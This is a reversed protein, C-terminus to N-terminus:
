RRSLLREREFVRSAWLVILGDLVAFLIAMMVLAAPTFLFLFATAPILLLVIPLALLGNLQYAVRYGSVRTSILAALGATFLAVLPVVVLVAWIRRGPLDTREVFWAAATGIVACLATVVVTLRVTNWLLSATLSRFILDLVTSVGAGQAEILLFALPLILLVAVAVSAGLLGRPRPPRRSPVIAAGAGAPQARAPPIATTPAM